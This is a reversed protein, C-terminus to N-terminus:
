DKIKEIAKVFKENCGKHKNKIKSYLMFTKFSDM